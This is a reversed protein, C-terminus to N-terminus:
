SVPSTRLLNPTLLKVLWDLLPGLEEPCPASVWDDKALTVSMAYSPQLYAGVASVLAKNFESSAAKLPKKKLDASVAQLFTAARGLADQYLQPACKLVLTELNGKESGNPLVFIGCRRETQSPDTFTSVESPSTPLNQALLLNLGKLGGKQKDTQLLSRTRDLKKQPPESDADTLFGVARPPADNGISIDINDWALPLNGQGKYQKIVVWHQNEGEGHFLFAPLQLENLTLKQDPASKILANFSLEFGPPFENKEKVQQYGLFMSLVRSLVVLDHVGECALLTWEPM